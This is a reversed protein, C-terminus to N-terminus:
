DIHKHQEANWPPSSTVVLKLHNGAIWFKENPPVFVMDGEAVLHERDGVFITGTGAVVFWAAEIETDVDFGTTPYRGHIESVGTSFHNFPLNYESFKSVGHEGSTVVENKRILYKM